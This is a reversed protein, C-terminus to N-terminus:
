YPGYETGGYNLRVECDSEVTLTLNGTTSTIQGDVCDATWTQNLLPQADDVPDAGEAAAVFYQVFGPQEYFWVARGDPLNELTRMFAGMVGSRYTVTGGPEPPPEVWWVVAFGIGIVGAVELVLRIIQIANQALWQGMAKAAQKLRKNNKRM